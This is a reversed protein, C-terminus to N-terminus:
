GPRQRWQYTGSATTPTHSSRLSAADLSDHVFPSPSLPYIVPCHGTPSHTSLERHYELYDLAIATREPIHVLAHKCNTSQRVTNGSPTISTHRCPPRAISPSRVTWVATSNARWLHGLRVADLSCSSCWGCQFRTGDKLSSTIFCSAHGVLCHRVNSCVPSKTCVACWSIFTSEIV